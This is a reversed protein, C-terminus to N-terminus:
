FQANLSVRAARPSGPTINSNSNAHLYYKKDFLNEVNLQLGLQRNLRYFAAADVRTYGPLTVNPIPAAATAIQENAALMSSRHIVGLGAGIQPTFDYRNWLAFTHRPVQAARAGERITASTDAVFEAKTYAYGGSVSWAPTIQGTLGLEFGENRQGDSLMTRTNTPDTPDLVIVNTRDLRFIAATAALRPSIDWKAGVEYNKFKEPDLEANTVNLSSLQDGARPQYAISYNAYLALNDVPKFIVGIRPSVLDDTTDINQGNRHNTFDMKFQDYRLGVIVQWQRTLEIQDQVYAALVKAKGSNDADTASQRYTIPLDTVPDSLPVSVSTVDGPFFGTNRFNDTKQRGLEVGGLLTHKMGGLMVEKTVDTQNFLSKRDTANNYASIAVETGAANVAGPFVNQYFKEQDSYRTRNKLVFGNDFRHEVYLSGANLRSGTPSGGANGFFTSRSTDVPRGRYSPIGRDAVRDDKFYEYGASLLTRGSRWSVTPNIGKRELTVGDRYSESDEYLANVRVSVSDNIPRNVDATLRRNQHSGLTLTGGYAPTWDAQKSARNILGGTAGRGFIMANPGRFVEVREINYLDRYYQVDDRIGDIFFDGTTSIGRFIPTERNGEGQAFGVGPVYRAAEALSQVSRDQMEQRTVVSISQPTDILPTDTKTATTASKAAYGEQQGTVTIAPLTATQASAGAALGIGGLALCAQAALLIPRLHFAATSRDHLPSPIPSM